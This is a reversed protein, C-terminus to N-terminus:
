KWGVTLKRFGPARAPHNLSTVRLLYFFLGATIFLNMGQSVGHWASFSSAAEARQEATAARNYKLVHLEKLKPQLWLGGLLSFGLIAVLVGSTLREFPRGTYLRELLLHLLAVGVCIYHLFFYRKLLIQAAAGNWPPPILKQMEESFFSPGAVFTFFIASGFWIAANVVGIFRLFGIM